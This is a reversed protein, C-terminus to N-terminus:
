NSCHLNVGRQLRTNILHGGGWNKLNHIFFYYEDQIWTLTTMHFNLPFWNHVYPATFSYQLAAFPFQIQILIHQDHSLHSFLYGIIFLAAFPLAMKYNFDSVFRQLYPLPITPQFHLTFEFSMFPLFTVLMLNQYSNHQVKLNVSITVPDSFRKEIAYCGSEPRPWRM